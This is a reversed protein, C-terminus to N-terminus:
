DPKIVKVTQSQSPTTARLLLQGASQRSMEFTHQEVSGAREVQYSGITQGRLNTLNIRLPQGGAGLVEVSVQGNQAPNGLVRMQLPAVPEAGIRASGGNCAGVWNYPFSAEGAMGLQSAKLTIVPNDTYLRLTYPGSATTPSLENAVSFTIAQGNLGSYQPTFSLQRQGASLTQCSVMTVATIGFSGGGSCAAVWNYSFSTEGATGSQTAKLILVPNDAYLALSYPGSQTTPALENVVSFTVAQGSLGSYQPNFTLNIRDNVPTCSVTTVGTIAFPGTPDPNPPVTNNCAALWNYSFSVEGATGSQVAKLTLTPNDAYLQLTYPGSATTPSLENVVQFTIAQGSLGTYQPNFSLNIRNGVPTCSITTVATISFPQAPGDNDLITITASNDTPHVQHHDPDLLTLTLTEHDEPHVDHSPYVYLDFAFEGAEFHTTDDFFHDTNHIATGSLEYEVTLRDDAGAHDREFRFIAHDTAPEDASIRANASRKVLRFPTAPSSASLRGGGSPGPPESAVSDPATVAVTPIPLITFNRNSIDFFINNSSAIKIRAQNTTLGPLTVSQSGDNPTNAVLTTPFTVGGDTSLLINVTACSVPAATTNAVSWTITKATGGSYSGALNTTELFPGSNGAVTVSMEKYAVGGYSDRVTLRHTTVIGVSPLKDGKAYNSGDLIAGLRPFTRTGTFVPEYSRFFPPQATNALTSADPEITGINMGEWSYSLDADDDTASGSLAFPTSKPITRNAPMTITPVTNNFPRSTFCSITAIYAEAQEFNTSHFNLFPGYAPREYNDDNPSEDCTFGYSMITAGAGPEVSTEPARTTCVPISSNYSHSMDFQHGIEHCLLQDDFIPAFSGDGVGSVGRGKSSADCVVGRSAVGGGSGLETTLVHGLDYNANGILADLNAQNQGLMTSQSGTYPDTAPNAYVATVDSVLVFEISLEAQYVAKLRNVYGVIGAFALNRNGGYVAQQTFEGTAALALRFSRIVTGTNNLAGQKRGGKDKSQNPLVPKNLDVTGCKSAPGFPKIREPRQADRGFYTMYLQDAQRTSVKDFYVADGEVGLIIANFGLATFSVRITYNKHTQGKGNYTKIEPHKAAIEPALVPSEVMDFTEVTGNPLPIALPLATGKKTFELPAKALYTRLQADKLNYFSLKKIHKTMSADVRLRNAPVPDFYPTQANATLVVSTLLVVLCTLPRYLHIFM